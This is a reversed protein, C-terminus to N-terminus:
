LLEVSVEVRMVGTVTITGKGNTGRRLFDEINELVSHIYVEDVNIVTECDACDENWFGGVAPINVGDALIVM